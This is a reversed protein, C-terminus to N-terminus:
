TLVCIILMLVNQRTTRYIFPSSTIAELKLSSRAWQGVAVPLILNWRWEPSTTTDGAAATEIVKSDLSVRCYPNCVGLVQLCYLTEDNRRKRKM